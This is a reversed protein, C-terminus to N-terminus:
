TRCTQDPISKTATISYLHIFRIRVWPQSEKGPVVERREREERKDVVTQPNWSNGREMSHLGGKIDTFDKEMEPARM